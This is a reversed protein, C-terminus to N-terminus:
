GIPGSGFIPFGYQVFHRDFSLAYSISLREMMAFSIADTLSFDKDSYKYVIAQAQKLDALTPHAVTTSSGELGQLFKTAIRQNLRTLLLAHTEAVVFTTTFLPSRQIALRTLVAQARHFNADDDDALAFYASTDIFVRPRSASPRNKM